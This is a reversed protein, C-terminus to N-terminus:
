RSRATSRERRRRRRASARVRRHAAHVDPNQRIRQGGGVRRQHVVAVGAIADREELEADLQGFHPRLEPLLARAKVREAAGVRAQVGLRQDDISFVTNMPEIFMSAREARMLLSSPRTIRLGSIARCTVLRSSSM